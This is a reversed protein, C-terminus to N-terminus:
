KIGELVSRGKKNLKWIVGINRKEKDILKLKDLDSIFDYVLKRSNLQSQKWLQAITFESNSNTLLIESIVFRTRSISLSEKFMSLSLEEEKEEATFEFDEQRIFSLINKRLANLERNITDTTTSGDITDKRVKNYRAHQIIINDFDENDNTNDSLLEIAQELKDEAVLKRIEKKLDHNRM